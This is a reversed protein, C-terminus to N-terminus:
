GVFYKYAAKGKLVVEVGFFALLAAILAQQATALDLNGLYFQGAIAVVTAILTWFKPSKLMSALYALVVDM